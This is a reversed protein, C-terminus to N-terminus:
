KQAGPMPNVPPIGQGNQFAIDQPKPKLYFREPNSRMSELYDITCEDANLLPNSKSEDLRAKALEMRASQSQPMEYDEIFRIDYECGKMKPDIEFWKTDKGPKSVAIERYKKGTPLKNGNSDVVDAGQKDKLVTIQLPSTYFQKINEIRLEALDWLLKYVHMQFTGGNRKSNEDLIVAERATKRGSHVGQATADISSNVDSNGKLLQLLQFGSQNAGGVEQELVQQNIPLNPNGGTVKKVSGPYLEYSDIEVGAGLLFGRNLSLIERDISLRILANAPDQEGKALDPFSKGYFSKVDALEFVTKAFPLRHHDFPIPGVKDNKQKNLWINNALIIYEDFDENYYSIVDILENDNIPKEKYASDITDFYINGAMVYEANPYKGYKNQFAKRTFQKKKCCDGKIEWYNENPYFELIDVIDREVRGVGGKIVEKETYDILGTEQDISNIEKIKIKEEVYMEEVIVTGKICADLAQEYLKYSGKEQKLTDEYVLLMKEAYENAARSKGTISIFPRAGVIMAIITKIKGRTIHDWSLSQWDDKTSKIEESVIGNYADRSDSVYQELTRGDFERRVKDREQKMDLYRQYVRKVVKVEEDSPNFSKKQGEELEQHKYESM